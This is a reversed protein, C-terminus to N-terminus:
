RGEDAMERLVDPALIRIKRGDMAITGQEAFRKFIRSLTEQITGLYFAIQGKPLDLEFVDAKHTARLLLLYSAVRAPTEKLSLDDIKRVLLRLKQSLVAMMKMALDPDRRIIEVFNRRPFFLLEGAELAQANAPFTSGEFVPVEGFVEGSGFVHIIQEKGSPSNRFVKVRGTGVGYFGNAETGAEFLLENKVIKRGTAIEALASIQEEPLGDFFPMTRILTKVDM